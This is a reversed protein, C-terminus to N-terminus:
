HRLGLLDSSKCTTRSGLVKEQLLKKPSNPVPAQIASQYNLETLTM